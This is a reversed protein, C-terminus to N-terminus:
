SCGRGLKLKKGGGPAGAAPPGSPLADAPATAAGTAPQAGGPGGLFRERLQKAQRYGAPSPSDSRLSVPTIVDDWWATLGEKVSLANYGKMSLLLQAEAAHGAGLGYVVIKQTRSLQKLGPEEFLQALPINVATPIHYDDYQWPLRIDILQFDSRKETLWQALEGATVHDKEDIMTRVASASDVPGAGPGHAVTSALALVLGLLLVSGAALMKGTLTIDIKM